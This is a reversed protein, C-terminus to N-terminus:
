SVFNRKFNQNSTAICDMKRERKEERIVASRLTTQFIINVPQATNQIKITTAMMLM